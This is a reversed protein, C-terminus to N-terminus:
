ELMKGHHLDFHGWYYNLLWDCPSPVNGHDMIYVVMLLMSVCSGDFPTIKLTM